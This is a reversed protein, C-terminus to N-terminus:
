MIFDFESAYPSSLELTRTQSLLVFLIVYEFGLM